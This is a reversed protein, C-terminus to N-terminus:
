DNSPGSTVDAISYMFYLVGIHAVFLTLRGIDAFIEANGFGTWLIMFHGLFVTLVMLAAITFVGATKKELFFMASSVDSDDELNRVIRYNYYSATLFIAFGLLGYVM